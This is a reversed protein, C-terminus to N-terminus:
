DNRNKKDEVSKGCINKFSCWKCVADVNTRRWGISLDQMQALTSHLLAETCENFKQSMPVEMVENNFMSLPQYISNVIQGGGWNPSHLIMYDYIFLQFAIKPRTKNDPAFLNEAVAEANGDNINMESNAVNGTKYDVIRVQGPLFSDKRDIFGVFKFGDVEAEVYEEL